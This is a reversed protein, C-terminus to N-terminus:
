KWSISFIGRRISFASSRAPAAITLMAACACQPKAWRQGCRRRCAPHPAKRSWNRTEDNRHVIASAWICCPRAMPFSKFRSTASAPSTNRWMCTGDGFAAKAERAAAEFNAALESEREVIRMGRGGGGAVAKLLVPYGLEAAIKMAVEASAVTGSSGPTVPVGAAMAVARASAKDGMTAIVDGPPGIFIVNERECLRAFAANESLFGYGPHIADAKLAKAAEVVYDARLYSDASRAPGICVAHDALRVAMSDRDAESYVQVVEIGLEHCARQIRVAIEGRNAVLVRRIQRAKSTM